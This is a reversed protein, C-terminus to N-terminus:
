TPSIKSTFIKRFAEASWQFSQLPGCTARPGSIAWGQRLSIIKFHLYQTVFLVCFSTALFLRLPSDLRM